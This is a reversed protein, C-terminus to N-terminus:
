RAEIGSAISKYLEDTVEPRVGFWKEFGPVAQHLLMGLGDVTKLGHRRAERILATELPVYVIDSVVCDPHFGTFDIDLTGEGKLGVSTSNVLVAADRSAVSRENWDVIKVRPGFDRALAEARDRTRNMVRIEGVGSELFGYVIARAAGGAGLISVHVDRKQWGPARAALYTMYGYADTNTAYLRGDELWLTNAAGISRATADAEDAIHLAEEKHPITVNCGRYGNTALLRLFGELKGPPVAEKTYSGDIGYRNLWYSHIAPSRSHEIPWGIVCARRM